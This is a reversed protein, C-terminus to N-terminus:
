NCMKAENVVCVGTLCFSLVLVVLVLWFLFTASFTVALVSCVAVGRFSAVSTLLSLKTLASVLFTKLLYVVSNAIKCWKRWGSFMDRQMGCIMWLIVYWMGSKPVKKYVIYDVVKLFRKYVIYYKKPSRKVRLLCLLSLMIDYLNTFFQIVDFPWESLVLFWIFYGM